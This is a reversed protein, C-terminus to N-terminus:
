AQCDAGVSAWFASFGETTRGHHMVATGSFPKRFPNDGNLRLRLPLGQARLRLRAEVPEAMSIRFKDNIAM